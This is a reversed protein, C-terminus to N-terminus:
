GANRGILFLLMTEMVTFESIVPQLRRPRMAAPKGVSPLSHLWAMSAVMVYARRCTCTYM